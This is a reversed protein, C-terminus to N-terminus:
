NSLMFYCLIGHCCFLLCFCCTHQSLLLDHSMKPLSISRLKFNNARHTPRIMPTSDCHMPINACGHRMAKASRSPSGGMRIFRAEPMVLTMDPFTAKGIRQLPSGTWTSAGIARMMSTDTQSNRGCPTAHVRCAQIRVECPMRSTRLPRATQANRNEACVHM